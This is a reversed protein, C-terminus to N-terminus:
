PRKRKWCEMPLCHRKRRGQTELAARRQHYLAPKSMITIPFLLPRTL